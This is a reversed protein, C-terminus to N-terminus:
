LEMVEEDYDDENDHEVDDNVDDEDEDDPEEEFLSNRSQKEMEDRRIAEKELRVIEAQKIRETREEETETSLPPTPEAAIPEEYQPKNVKPTSRDKFKSKKVIEKIKIGNDSEMFDSLKKIKSDEVFGNMDQWSQISDVNSIYHTGNRLAHIQLAFDEIPLNATDEYSLRSKSGPIGVFKIRSNAKVLNEEWGKHMDTYKAGRVIAFCTDTVADLDVVTENRRWYCGNKLEKDSIVNTPKAAMTVDVFKTLGATDAISGRPAQKPRMWPAIGFIGPRVDRKLKFRDWYNKGNSSIASCNIMALKVQNGRINNVDTFIQPAKENKKGRFCYFLHPKESTIAARIIEPDVNIYNQIKTSNQQWLYYSIVFFIIGVFSKKLGSNNSKEQTVEVVKPNSVPANAANKLKREKRTSM